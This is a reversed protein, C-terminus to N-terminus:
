NQTWVGTNGLGNTAMRDISNVQFRAWFFGIRVRKRGAAKFSSTVMRRIDSWGLINSSIPYIRPRSWVHPRDAHTQNEVRGSFVCLAVKVRFILAWIRDLISFPSAFFWPINPKFIPWKKADGWCNLNKQLRYWINLCSSHKQEEVRGFYIYEAIAHSFIPDWSGCIISFPQAFVRTKKKQFFFRIRLITVVEKLNRWSLEINEQFEM